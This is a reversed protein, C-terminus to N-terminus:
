GNQAYTCACAPNIYDINGCKSPLWVNMWM